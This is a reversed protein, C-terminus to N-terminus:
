ISQTILPIYGMKILGLNRRKIHDSTNKGHAKHKEM